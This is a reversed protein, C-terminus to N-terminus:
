GGREHAVRVQLQARSSDALRRCATNDIFADEAGQERRTLREWLGSVEPHPTLLIDCPLSDLTRFSRDFDELVGPYTTNHTFLFGEASVPTLSDAYVMNLCRQRECSIWTWTTGGPTHGPTLHATLALPGVHLTERDQVLRVRAVPAIGRLSGFQPDDAGARGQSLVKASAASAAVTAGSLRQLEAIGGAHDQHVHSNLILKVDAIRFGLEGISAAIKAASEAFDGDILIHGAESTILISSVGRVGVYYTNGYVRFPKQTENGPTCNKCPPAGHALACAALLLPAWPAFRRHNM